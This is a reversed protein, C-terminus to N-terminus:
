HLKTKRYIVCVELLRKGRRIPINSIHKLHLFGRYCEIGGKDADHGGFQDIRIHKWNKKYAIHHITRGLSEEKGLLSIFAFLHTHRPYRAELKM